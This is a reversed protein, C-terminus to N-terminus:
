LDGRGNLEKAQLIMRNIGEKIDIKPLWGPLRGINTAEQIRGIRKGPLCKAGTQSIILEAVERISFKEYSCIDYIKGKFESSFLALHFAKSIDDIHTFQRWEEGTTQMKIRGFKVAQFVFDSIVHSKVNEKELVGYANWVRVTVGNLYSAWLEGLRKITGYITNEETLQTSVFLFKPKQKEIQSMMNTLLQLNWQLQPLQLKEQYLYKSGGVDWALFYVRSFKRFNFRYTRADEKKSRTIDFRIVKEGLRELYSCFPKGIFGESGIVLNTVQNM